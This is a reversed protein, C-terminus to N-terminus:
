TIPDQVAVPSTQETAPLTTNLLDTQDRVPQNLTTRSPIRGTLFDPVPNPSENDGTVMDHSDQRAESDENRSSARQYNDRSSSRFRHNLCEESKDM